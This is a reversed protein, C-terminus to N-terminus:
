PAVFAFGSDTTAMCDPAGGYIMDLYRQSSGFTRTIGLHTHYIYSPGCDIIVSKHMIIIWWLGMQEIERVTLKECLLCAVEMNPQQLKHQRAFESVGRMTQNKGIFLRGKLIAIKTTVGKTPKFEDSVLIKEAGISVHCGKTKLRKIWEPGTTGDSTVTIYIADSLEDPNDHLNLIKFENRLFKLAGDEGGLKGIIGGVQDATLNGYIPRTKM